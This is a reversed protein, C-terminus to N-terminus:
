IYWLFEIIRIFFMRLKYLLRNLLNDEQAKGEITETAFANIDGFVVVELLEKSPYDETYSKSVFIVIYAGDVSEGMYGDMGLITTVPAGDFSYTYSQTSGDPKTVTYSVSEAEFNDTVTINDIVIESVPFPIYEVPYELCADAYYIEVVEKEDDFYYWIEEGNLEYYEYDDEDTVTEVTAREKSGDPYVIDFVAGDLTYEEEGTLVDTVVSGVLGLERYTDSLGSVPIIEKVYCDILEVEAEGSRNDMEVGISSLLTIEYYLPLVTDGNEAAKQYDRIDVYLDCHIIRKGSENTGYGYEVFITEGSTLSVEVPFDIYCYYDEESEIGYEELIEIYEELERATVVPSDTVVDEIKDFLGASAQVASASFLLLLTLTLATLKRLTKKM